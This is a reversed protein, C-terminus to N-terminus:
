IRLMSVFMMMTIALVATTKMVFGTKALAVILGILLTMMMMMIVVTTAMM